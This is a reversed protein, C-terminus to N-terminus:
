QKQLPLAVQYFAIRFQHHPSLFPMSLFLVIGFFAFVKKKGTYNRIVNRLYDFYIIYFSLVILLIYLTNTAELSPIFYYYLVSLISVFFLPYYFWRSNSKNNEDIMQIVREEIKSLTEEEDKGDEATYFLLRFVIMGSLFLYAVVLYQPPIEKTISITAVITIILVWFLIRLLITLYYIKLQLRLGKYLAIISNVVLPRNSFWVFLWFLIFYLAVFLLSYTVLEKEGVHYTAVAITVLLFPITAYFALIKTSIYFAKKNKEISSTYSKQFLFFPIVWISISLLLISVFLSGLSGFQSLDSVNSLQNLYTEIIDKGVTTKFLIFWLGVLILVVYWNYFTTKLFSRFIDGHLFRPIRIIAGILRVFLFELLPFFLYICILSLVTFVLLYPLQNDTM